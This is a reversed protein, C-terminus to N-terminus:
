QASMECWMSESSDIVIRGQGAGLDIQGQWATTAGGEADTVERVLELTITGAPVNSVTVAFDFVCMCDCRAAMGPLPGIEEPADRETVVYASGEEHVTMSHEGCCNLTVRNNSLTLEHAAADYQWSLVEAECYTAADTELSQEQQGFGGCASIRQEQALPSCGLALAGTCVLAALM